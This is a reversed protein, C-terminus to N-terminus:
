ARYLNDSDVARAPLRETYILTLHSLAILTRETESERNHTGQCLLRHYGPAVINPAVRSECNYVPPRNCATNGSDVYACAYYRNNSVSPGTARSPRSKGKANGDAGRECLGIWALVRITGASESASM